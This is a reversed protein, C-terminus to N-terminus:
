KKVKGKITSAATRTTLPKKRTTPKKPEDKYPVARGLHFLTKADMISVEHVEGVGAHKGDVITGSTIKIKMM